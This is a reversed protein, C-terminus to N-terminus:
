MDQNLRREAMDEENMRAFVIQEMGLEKFIQAHAASHGFPDLQWATRPKVGFENWLFGHAAEYNRLIDSYNTCAEDPSVLGGHVLDLQKNKM